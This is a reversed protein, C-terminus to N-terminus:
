TRVLPGDPLVVPANSLCRVYLDNFTQAADVGYYKTLSEFCQVIDLRCNQLALLGPWHADTGLYRRGDLATQMKLFQLSLMDFHSVSSFQGYIADYLDAMKDDSIALSTLPPLSDRRQAMTRLDTNEWEKLRAQEEKSIADTAWNPVPGFQAEMRKRTQEPMTRLISRVKSHFYRRYKEAETGDPQRALWSFRVAQEYRDRLLSMTAHILGWSANLRVALSTVESIHMMRRSMFHAPPDEEQQIPLMARYQTWARETVDYVAALPAAAFPGLNDLVNAEPV